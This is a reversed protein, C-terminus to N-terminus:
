NIKGKTLQMVQDTHNKIWNENHSVILLSKNNNSKKNKWSLILNSLMEQGEIDLGDNPEDLLLIEWINELLIAKSISLKRLMGSSFVSVPM